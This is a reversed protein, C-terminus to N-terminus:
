MDVSVQIVFAIFSALFKKKHNVYRLGMKGKLVTLFTLM